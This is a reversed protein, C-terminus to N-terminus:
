PVLRKLEEAWSLRRARKMSTLGAVVSIAHFLARLRARERDPHAARAVGGELQCAVFVAAALPEEAYKEVFRTAAGAAGRRQERMLDILFSTDVHIV